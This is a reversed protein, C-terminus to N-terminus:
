NLEDTTFSDGKQPVTQSAAPAIHLAYQIAAAAIITYM